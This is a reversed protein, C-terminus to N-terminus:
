FQGFLPDDKIPAKQTKKHNRAYEKVAEIKGDKNILAKGCPSPADRGFNKGVRSQKKGPLPYVLGEKDIFQLTKFVPIDPM